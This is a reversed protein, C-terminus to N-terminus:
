SYFTSDSYQNLLMCYKRLLANSYMSIEAGSFISCNDDFGAAFDTAHGATVHLYFTLSRVFVTKFHTNITHNFKRSFLVTALRNM